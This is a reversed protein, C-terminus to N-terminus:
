LPPLNITWGASSGLAEGKDHLCKALQAVSGGPRGKANEEQKILIEGFSNLAM